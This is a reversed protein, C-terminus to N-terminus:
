SNVAKCFVLYNVPRRWPNQNCERRVAKWVAMELSSTKNLMKQAGFNSQCLSGWGNKSRCEGRGIHRVCGNIIFKKEPGGGEGEIIWYESSEMGGM